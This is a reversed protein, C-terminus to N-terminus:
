GWKNDADGTAGPGALGRDGLGDELADTRVPNGEELVIGIVFVQAAQRGGLADFDVKVMGVRQFILQEDLMNLLKLFPCGASTGM